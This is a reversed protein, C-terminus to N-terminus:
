DKLINIWIKLMKKLVKMMVNHIIELINQQNLLIVLNEKRIMKNLIIMMKKCIKKLSM